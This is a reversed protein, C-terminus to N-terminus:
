LRFKVGTGFYWTDVDGERRRRTQGFNYRIDPDIVILFGTELNLAINQSIYYDVGSGIKFGFSSREITASRAEDTLGFFFIGFGPVFYPVLRGKMLPLRVPINAILPFMWRKGLELNQERMNSYMFGSELEVGLYKTFDYGVKGSFGIAGNGNGEYDRGYAVSLTGYANKRNPFDYEQPALPENEPTAPMLRYPSPDVAISAAHVPSILQAIAILVILLLRSIDFKKM